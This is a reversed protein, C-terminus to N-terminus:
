GRSQWPPGSVSKRTMKVCNYNLRRQNIDINGERVSSWWNWPFLPQPIQKQKNPSEIKDYGEAQVMIVAWHIVWHILNFNLGLIVSCSNSDVLDTESLRILVLIVIVYFEGGWKELKLFRDGHENYWNFDPNTKKM